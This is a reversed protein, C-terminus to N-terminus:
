VYDGYGGEGRNALIYVQFGKEFKPNKLKGKWAGAILLVHHEGTKLPIGLARWEEEPIKMMVVAQNDTGKLITKATISLDGVDEILGQVDSM